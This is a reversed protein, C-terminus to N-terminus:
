MLIRVLIQEFHVEAGPLLAFGIGGYRANVGDVLEEPNDTGTEKSLIKVKAGFVEEIIEYTKGEEVLFNTPRDDGSAASGGFPNGPNSDTKGQAAAKKSANKAEEQAAATEYGYAQRQYGGTHRAYLTFGKKIVKFKLILQYHRMTEKTGPWIDKGNAMTRVSGGNPGWFLVGARLDGGAAGGKVVGTAIMKTGDLKWNAGPSAVWHQEINGSKQFEKPDILNIPTVTKFGYKDSAAWEESYLNTKGRIAEYLEKARASGDVGAKILSQAEGTFWEEAEQFAATLAPLNDKNAPNQEVDTAKQYHAELIAVGNLVKFTAMDKKQADTAMGMLKDAKDLVKQCEEAKRPDKSNDKLFNFLDNFEKRQKALERRRDLEQVFTDYDGRQQDLILPQKEKLLAALTDIAGDEQHNTFQDRIYSIAGTSASWAKDRAADENHKKTFTYIAVSGAILLFAGAAIAVYKTTNDEQKVYRTRSEEGDEEDRAPKPRVGSASSSKSRVGSSSPSKLSASSASSKVSVSAPKAHSGSSASAAPAAATTKAGSAEAPACNSHYPNGDIKRYSGNMVDKVPIESGCRVCNTM